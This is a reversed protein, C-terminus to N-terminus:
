TEGATQGLAPRARLHDNFLDTNGIRLVNEDAMLSSKYSSKVALSGPLVPVVSLTLDLLM